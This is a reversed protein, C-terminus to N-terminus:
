RLLEQSTWGVGDEFLLVATAGTTAGLESVEKPWAPVVLTPFLRQTALGILPNVGQRRQLLVVEHGEERVEDLVRDLQNLQAGLAGGGWAEGFPGKANEAVAIRGTAWPGHVFLSWAGGGLLVALALAALGRAPSM